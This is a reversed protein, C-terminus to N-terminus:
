YYQIRNLSNNYDNHYKVERTNQRYMNSYEYSDMPKTNIYNNSSLPSDNTNIAQDPSEKYSTAITQHDEFIRTSINNNMLTTSTNNHQGTKGDHKTDNEVDNICGSNLLM